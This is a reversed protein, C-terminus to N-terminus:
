ERFEGREGLLERVLARVLARRVERIVGRVMPLLRRAVVPTNLAATRRSM